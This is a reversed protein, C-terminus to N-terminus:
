KTIKFTKKVGWNPHKQNQTGVWKESTIQGLYLGEKINKMNSICSSHVHFMQCTCLVLICGFIKLYIDVYIKDHLIFSPSILM